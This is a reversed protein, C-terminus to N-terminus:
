HAYVFPFFYCSVRKVHYTDYEIFVDHGSCLYSTRVKIAQVEPLVSSDEVSVTYKLRMPIPYIMRTLDWYLVNERPDFCYNAVIWGQPYIEGLTYAVEGQYNLPGRVDVSIAKPYACNITKEFTYEFSRMCYTVPEQAGAAGVSIIFLSVVILFYRM